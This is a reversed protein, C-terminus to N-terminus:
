CFNEILATSYKIGNKNKPAEPNYLRGQGSSAWARVDDPDNLDGWDPAQWDHPVYLQYGRKNGSAVYIGPFKLDTGSASVSCWGLTYTLATRVPEFHIVYHEGDFTEIKLTKGTM